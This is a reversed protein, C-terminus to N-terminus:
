RRARHRGPRVREDAARGARRPLRVGREVAPEARGSRAHPRTGQTGPRRRLLGPRQRRAHVVPRGAPRRDHPGRRPRGAGRVVRGAPPESRVRPGRRARRLHRARCDSNGALAEREERCAGHPPGMARCGQCLRHRRHGPAPHPQRRLRQYQEEREFIGELASPEPPSCARPAQPVTPQRVSTWEADVIDNTAPAPRLRSAASTRALVLASTTGSPTATVPTGGTAQKGGSAWSAAKGYAAVAGAAVLPAAVATGVAAMKVVSAGHGGATVVPQAVSAVSLSAAGGAIEGAFKNAIAIFVLLLLNFLLVQFLGGVTTINSGLDGITRAAVAYLFGVVMSLVLFRVGCSVMWGLARETMWKTQDSLMFPLLVYVVVTGVKFLVMHTLVLIVVAAGCIFVVLATLLLMAGKVLFGVSPIWDDNRLSVAYDYLRFATTFAHEGFSSPRDLDVINYGTYGEGTGAQVGIRAMSNVFADTYDSWNLAFWLIVSTAAIRRLAPYLVASDSAFWRIAMWLISLIILFRFVAAVPSQINFFGADIISSLEAYFNDIPSAFNDM